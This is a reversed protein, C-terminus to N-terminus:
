FSYSGGLGITRPQLLKSAIEVPTGNADLFAFRNLNARKDTVNRVFTRIAVRGRSIGANADIVWYPSMVVAPYGGRSRSQVADPLNWQEGLSRVTSGLQAQWGSALPRTYALSAAMNWKPVDPLQYGPVIYDAAPITSEIACQTYAVNYTLQLVSVPAYTSTLEVGKSYGQAGNTLFSANNEFVGAQIDRWDVYFVALDASAAAHPKGAKVGLEYTVTREGGVTAPVGPQFGNPSGPQFGSAAQAYVITEPTLRYRVAGMWSADTESSHGYVYTSPIEWGATTIWYSQYDNAV